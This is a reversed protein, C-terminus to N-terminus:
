DDMILAYPETSLKRFDSRERLRQVGYMQKTVIQDKRM